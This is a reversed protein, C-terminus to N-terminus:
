KLFLLDGSNLMMLEISVITFVFRIYLALMNDFFFVKLGINLDKLSKLLFSRGDHV